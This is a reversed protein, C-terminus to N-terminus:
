KVEKIVDDKINNTTYNDHMKLIVEQGEILDIGEVVWINGATDEIRAKGNEISVVQGKRTYYHEAKGAIGLVALLCLIILLKKM